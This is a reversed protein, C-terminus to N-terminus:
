TMMLEHGSSRSIQAFQVDGYQEGKTRSCRGQMTFFVMLSAAIGSLLALGLVFPDMTFRPTPGNGFEDEGPTAMVDRCFKGLKWCSDTDFSDEFVIAEM